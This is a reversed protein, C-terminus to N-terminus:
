DNSTWLGSSNLEWFGFVEPATGDYEFPSLQKWTNVPHCALRYEVPPTFEFTCLLGDYSGDGTNLMAQCNINLGELNDANGGFLPHGNQSDALMHAIFDNVMTEVQNRCIIRAAAGENRINLKKGIIFGGQKRQYQFNGTEAAGWTYDILRFFYGGASVQGRFDGVAEEVSVVEFVKDGDQHLLAPHLQCLWKFYNVYLQYM